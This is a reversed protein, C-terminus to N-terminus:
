VTVFVGGRRIDGAGSFGSDTMQALHVGGFFMNPEEFRIVQQYTADLAAVVDPDMGPTEVNALAGEVHLRPAAIAEEPSMGLGLLNHIVQLIATRIRNSGGTGLVSLGDDTQLITPCMMTPMAEGSPRKHFGDPNIDAEGLFNNAMVGTNPVMIGCGEGNSHTIGVAMGSSDVVSIHTTSGNKTVGTMWARLAESFAAISADQLFENPDNTRAETMERQIEALWLAARRSDEAVDPPISDLLTLGLAVLAGGLVDPPPLIVNAKQFLVRNTNRLTPKALEFDSETLLGFPPGFTKLTSEKLTAFADGELGGKALGELLDALVPNLFLEDSQLPQGNPAFLESTEREYVLIPKLIRFIFAMQPSLAVGARGLHCAHEVLRGLPLSGWLRHAELLGMLTGPVAVAGRGVHFEQTTPGFDVSVKRFELEDTRKPGNVGPVRAFFDLLNSKGDPTQVILLGGGLLGGLVPEAVVSAFGAAVAADMANGGDNLVDAAARATEIHGAAVAGKNRIQSM